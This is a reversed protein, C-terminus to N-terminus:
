QALVTSVPAISVANAAPGLLWSILATVTEPQMRAMVIVSGNDQAEVLARALEAAVASPIEDVVRYIVGSPVNAERARDPVDNLGIGRHTLLGHGTVTVADIARAALAQDLPMPGDIRDVLATSGPVAALTASVLDALLAPDGGREVIQQEAPMVAVVEYGATRYTTTIDTANELDAEVGFTFPASLSLLGERLTQPAGQDLLVISMLPRSRDVSITVSNEALASGPVLPQPVLLARGEAPETQPDSSIDTDVVPVAASATDVTPAGSTPTTAAAVQAAGDTRAPSQDSAQGLGVNAGAVQPATFSPSQFDPAPAGEDSSGPTPVSLPTTQPAQPAPAPVAPATDDTTAVAVSETQPAAIPFVIAAAAFVIACLVLGSLFGRFFGGM